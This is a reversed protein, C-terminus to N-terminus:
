ERINLWPAWYDESYKPYAREDFPVVKGPVVYPRYSDLLRKLNSAIAPYTSSLDKCETPDHFVDFLCYNCYNNSAGSCVHEVRAIKRLESYNAPLPGLRKNVTSGEVGEKDYPMWYGSQGYYGDAIKLKIDPAYNKVLKWRGEIIAESNDLDNIDVVLTDRPGREASSLSHWQNIGDKIPLDEPSGGAAAYLTPLWDSIHFLQESVRSSKNFLPSWALAVTRVGGEHVSKKEGRLPWNSAGNQRAPSAPLGGNDSMFVIISNDLDGKKGLASVIEGVSWDLKETMARLYGRETNNSVQPPAERSLPLDTGHVAAHGIVLLLGEGHHDEIIKIAEKTLLDTLYTGYVERWAGTENRWFDRGVMESAYHTGDWYGLFGNYYGFFSDFGRRTPLHDISEYGLHWKGVLHSRYGLRSFYEPMLKVGPKLGHQHGALCPRGQMGHRFPYDGTLLATRSPSCLPQSYHRNLIIGHYALSDLNPTHVDGSHFGVDNWGLDDAVIIVITPRHCRATRLLQFLALVVPVRLIM